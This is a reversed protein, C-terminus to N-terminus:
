HLNISFIFKGFVHCIWALKSFSVMVFLLSCSEDDDKRFCKIQEGDDVGIHDRLSSSGGFQRVLLLIQIHNEYFRLNFITGSSALPTLIFSTKTSRSMCDTIKTNTDGHFSKRRVSYDIFYQTVSVHKL